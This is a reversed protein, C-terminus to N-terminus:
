RRFVPARLMLGARVGNRELRHPVGAGLQVFSGLDYFYYLYEAYAAVGRTLAYRLRVDATYTELNSSDVLFVASSGSTYAANATLDMRATLLAALNASVGDTFVPRRLQPVYDLGRRYYGGVAVTKFQYQLSMDSTARYLRDSDSGALLFPPVSVASAGFRAAFEFRRTASLPRAYGVGGEVGHESYAADELVTGEGLPFPGFTGERYRYGMRLAANRTLNRTFDGSVGRTALDPQANTEEVFDTYQLDGNASVRNRRSLNHTLAVSTAYSYSAFGSVAYDPAPPIPEGPYHAPDSPFLGYFYSPSYALSQNLLLSTRSGLRGNLGIAGSHSVARFEDLENFYRFESLATAAVEVRPKDLRYDAGPSFITSYGNFLTETTGIGIGRLEDPTDSDYAEALTFSLDLKQRAPSSDGSFLSGHPLSTTQPFAPAAVCLLLSLWICGISASRRLLRAGFRKVVSYTVSM